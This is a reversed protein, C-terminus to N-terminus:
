LLKVKIENFKMLRKDNTIFADAKAVVATALEIADPTQFGYKRRIRAAEIAIESDLNKIKLNPTELFLQM